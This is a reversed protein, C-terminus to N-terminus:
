SPTDDADTSEPQKARPRNWGGYISEGRTKVKYRTGIFDEDVSVKCGKFGEPQVLVGQKNWRWGLALLRETISPQGGQDKARPEDGEPRQTNEGQAESM